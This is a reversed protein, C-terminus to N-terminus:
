AFEWLTNGTDNCAKSIYKQSVGTIRSAEAQSHYFIGKNVVAKCHAKGSTSRGLRIDNHQKQKNDSWTVLQINDISYGKFDDLRDISPTLLKNYGSEVWTNYMSSFSDKNFVWEQLEARTYNPANHKRRKSASKQHRYISSILGEKTKSKIKSLENECQKCKSRYSNREKRAYFMIAPKVKSCRACKRHGDTIRAM